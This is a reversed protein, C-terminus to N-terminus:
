KCAIECQRLVDEGDVAQSGAIKLLGTAFTPSYPKGGVKFPEALLAAFAGPNLAAADGVIGFAHTGTRTLLTQPLAAKLRQAIAQLLASWEAYASVPNAAFFGDFSIVAATLTDSDLSQKLQRNIDEVLTKRNPIGLLSDEFTMRSVDALLVINESGASYANKMIELLALDAHADEVERVLHMVVDSYLAGSIFLTAASADIISKRLSLCRELRERLAADSIEALNKSRFDSLNQTTVSVYFNDSSEARSLLLGKPTTGLLEAARMMVDLTYDELSSVGLYSSSVSMLQAIARHTAEQKCLLDYARLATTLAAHLRNVTVDSKLLYGNIDYDSVASVESAMGPQGTRLLLQTKTMGLDQRITKIITLGADDTEMVVDLLVVAIGKERKLIELAEAASYAHLYIPAVGQYAFDYLVHKTTLHVDEDDDVFLIKLSSSRSQATADTQEDQFDFEKENSSATSM